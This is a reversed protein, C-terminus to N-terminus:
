TGVPPPASRGRASQLRPSPPAASASCRHPERRRAPRSPSCPPSTAAASCARGLASPVGCGERRPRARWVVSERGRGMAEISSSMQATLALDLKSGEGDFPVYVNIHICTYAIVVIRREESCFSVTRFAVTRGKRVSEGGLRRIKRFVWEVIRGEDEIGARRIGPADISEEVSPPLHSLVGERVRTEQHRAEVDAVPIVPGGDGM